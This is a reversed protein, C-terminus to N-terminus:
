RNKFVFYEYKRRRDPFQGILKMSPFLLDKNFESEKKRVRYIVFLQKGSSRLYKKFADSGKSVIEWKADNGRRVQHRMQFDNEPFFIIMKGCKSYYLFRSEEYNSLIESSVDPIANARILSSIDKLWKKDNSYHLAKGSYAFLIILVLVATIRSETLSPFKKGAYKKVSQVFSFMGFGSFVTAMIMIPYLYRNSFPIGSFFALMRILIDMSGLILLFTLASTMKIKKRAPYVFLLFVINAPYLTNILRHLFIMWLKFSFLARM